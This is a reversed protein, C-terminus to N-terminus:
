TISASNLSSVIVLPCKLQNLLDVGRKKDFGRQLLSEVVVFVIKQNSEVYKLIEEEFHGIRYVFNYRIGDNELEKLLSKLYGKTVKNLKLSDSVYLIDLGAEIRKCLNKVCNVVKENIKNGYIGFLVEREAEELFERATEIEGAEAFAIAASELEYRKFFRKLRKM